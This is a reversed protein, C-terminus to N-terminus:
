KKVASIMYHYSHYKKVHEFVSLWRYLRFAKPGIGPYSDNPYVVMDSFGLRKLIKKIAWVNTPFEYDAPKHDTKKISHYLSRLFRYLFKPLLISKAAQYIGWANPDELFLTGGPKLLDAFTQLLSALNDSEHHIVDISLVYDFGGKRFPLKNIDGAICSASGNENKLSTLMSYVLDFNVFLHGKKEIEVYNSDYGCGINIFTKGQETVHRNVRNWFEKKSEFWQNLGFQKHSDQESHKMKGALSEEEHLHEEDITAPYLCPIGDRIEYCKRCGACLLDDTEIELHGGCEPCALLNLLDPNLSHSM